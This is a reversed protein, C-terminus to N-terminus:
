NRAFDELVKSKYQLIPAVSQGKYFTYIIQAVYRSCDVQRIWPKNLAEEPVYSLNTTNKNKCEFIEIVQTDLLIEPPTEDIINVEIVNYKEALYSLSAGNKYEANISETKKLLNENSEDLIDQYVDSLSLEITKNTQVESM